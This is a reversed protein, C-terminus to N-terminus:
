NYFNTSSTSIIVTAVNFFLPHLMQVKTQENELGGVYNWTVTPMEVVTERIASPTSKGMAFRFDEMTVALSDLAETDTTEEELDVLDMKERIQQLAAESCLAALDAHTEVAVKPLFM